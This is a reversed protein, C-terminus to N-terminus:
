RGADLIESHGLLQLKQQMRSLRTGLAVQTHLYVIKPPHSLTGRPTPAM